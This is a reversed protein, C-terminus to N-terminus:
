PDVPENWAEEEGATVKGPVWGQPKVHHLIQGHTEDAVVMLPGFPDNLM